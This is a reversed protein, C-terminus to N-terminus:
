RRRLYFLAPLILVVGALVFGMQVWKLSHSEQEKVPDGYNWQNKPIRYWRKPESPHQVSMDDVIFPSLSELEERRQNQSLVIDSYIEESSLKGTGFGREDAEFRKITVKTPFHGLPTEKWDEYSITLQPFSPVFYVATKPSFVQDIVNKEVFGPISSWDIVKQSSRNPIGCAFWSSSIEGIKEKDKGSAQKTSADMDKLKPDFPSESGIECPLPPFNRFLATKSENSVKVQSLRNFSTYSENHAITLSADFRKTPTLISLFADNNKSKEFVALRISNKGETRSTHSFFYDRNRSFYLDEEFETFEDFINDPNGSKRLSDIEKKDLFVKRVHKCQVQFVEGLSQMKASTQGQSLLPVFVSSALALARAIYNGKSTSM